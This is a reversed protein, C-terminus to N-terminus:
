YYQCLHGVSLKKGIRYAHFTISSREVSRLVYSCSYLSLMVQNPQLRCTFLKLLLPLKGVFDHKDSDWVPASRVGLCINFFSYVVKVKLSAEQM